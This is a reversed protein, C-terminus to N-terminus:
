PKPGRAPRGPEDPPRGFLKWRPEDIRRVLGYDLEGRARARELLVEGLVAREEDGLEAAFDRVADAFAVGEHEAALEDVREELLRRSWSM